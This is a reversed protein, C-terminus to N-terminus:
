TIPETGAGCLERCRRAAYDWASFSVSPVIFSDVGYQQYGELLQEATLTPTHHAHLFADVLKQAAAVAEAATSFEGLMYREAPDLYHYNDDVYVTFM